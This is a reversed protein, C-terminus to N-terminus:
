FLNQGYSVLNKLKTCMYQPFNKPVGTFICMCTTVICLYVVIIVTSIALTRCIVTKGMYAKYSIDSMHSKETTASM